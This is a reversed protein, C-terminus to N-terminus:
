GVINKGSPNKSSARELKQNHVCDKTDNLFDRIRSLDFPQLEPPRYAPRRHVQSKFTFIRVQSRIVASESMGPDCCAVIFRLTLKTDRCELREFM